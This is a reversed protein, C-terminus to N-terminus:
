ADICIIPVPSYTDSKLTPRDCKEWLLFTLTKRNFDEAGTIPIRVLSMEEM